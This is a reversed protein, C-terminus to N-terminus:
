KQVELKEIRDHLRCNWICIFAIFGLILMLGGETFQWTM